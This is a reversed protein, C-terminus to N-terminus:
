PLSMMLDYGANQSARLKDIILALGQPTEVKIYELVKHSVMDWAGMNLGVDHAHLDLNHFLCEWNIEGQLLLRAFFDYPNGSLRLQFTKKNSGEKTKTIVYFHPDKASSKKQSEKLLCNQAQMIKEGLVIVCHFYKDFPTKQEIM